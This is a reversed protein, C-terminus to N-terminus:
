FDCFLGWYIFHCASANIIRERSTVFAAALEGKYLLQKIIILINTEDCLLNQM